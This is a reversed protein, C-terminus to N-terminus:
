SASNAQGHKQSKVLLELALKITKQLNKNTYREPLGPAHILAQFSFTKLTHSIAFTNCSNISAGKALKNKGAPFLNEYTCPSTM